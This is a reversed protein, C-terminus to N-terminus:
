SRATQGQDARDVISILGAALLASRDRVADVGPSYVSPASGPSTTSISGPQSAILPTRMACLAVADCSLAPRGSVCTAHPLRTTAALSTHSNPKLSRRLQSERYKPGTGIAFRRPFSAGTRVQHDGHAVVGVRNLVSVTIPMVAMLLPQPNMVEGIEDSQTASSARFSRASCRACTADIPRLFSSSRAVPFRAHFDQRRARSRCAIVSLVFWTRSM